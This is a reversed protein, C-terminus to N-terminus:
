RGLGPGPGTGGSAAGGAAPVASAAASIVWGSEDIIATGSTWQQGRETGGRDCCAIFMRNTRAAAMAIIVEPPHEGAPRPMLPWNTPVAVLDAGRLALTRTMEPFELDYCILIGIRGYATGFVPPLEGGPEFIRKETDWLHTKRYVGRVGTGDVLAASNYLLGDDGLECFGGIVIAPGRAAAAAWDAFLPHAPTIAVSAAEARSAFVYGSTVLEPLVVVDAGAAVARGVSQVSMERNAALDAIRPSLQQCSIITM